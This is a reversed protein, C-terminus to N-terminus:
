EGVSLALVVAISLKGIIFNGMPLWTILNCNSFKLPACAKCGM